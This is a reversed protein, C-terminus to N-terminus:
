RDPRRTVRLANIVPKDSGARPIFRVDMRGDVVEVFFTRADAAYRGVEYAIDHAPLVMQEEVIVDFLRKGPSSNDFEAFRLDVQYIGNPVGDFRYAYPDIRQNKYLKPDDTGSISHSTSKTKSSQVYGWGKASYKRDAAWTDGLTDKYSDGGAAVGQQYDTVVLSVPIRLSGERGANSRVYISALYTGPVLGKTDVTVTLSKKQGPAVSGTTPSVALWPVDSFAPVGSEVLYVRNPNQSITWLNGNEDMELGGGQFGGTAPHPLVSLVTCDDPNLEYISDTPSNTSAWLVGMAGNWALGAISGDAPRCSGVVAGKDAHSLGKVHYVTGENWGAVYFTDDDSRYALGRQSQASWPFNGAISGAVAGTNPDWCYIGNDGGVNLQCVLKRGADYAMDAPWDTVWSHDYARGTAAGAPTFEADHKGAPPDSLWVNGSYGVGWALQMGTPAFSTIVNGPSSPAWGALRLGPALLGRTNLASPNLAGSRALRSTSVTAQLKGGAEAIEFDLNLSGTNKLTLTRTRKQDAPMLLQVVAPTVEARATKLAFDATVTQNEAITVPKQQQGYGHAGAELTYSGVPLQMRYAGAGNTKTSRIVAGAQLARIETGAVAKGDNVDTVVGKAFGSPPLSFLIASSPGLAAQNFSYQFAVSGTENEIGITASGGLQRPDTGDGYQFQIRGNEYLVMEFRTRLAQNDYFAVDRWEIVFQRDPAVGRVDTRVSAAGDVVMDDWFAYIAANPVNRDPIQVNDYAGSKGGQFEIYGKTTLTATSYTQGYLSFDFPLPVNLTGLDGVLPVVTQAEIYSATLDQCGYGFADVRKGLVFDLTADAALVLPKSQGDLCAGAAAQVEYTGDPVSSFAYHGSADTVAPPLPTAAITVKVGPIPAGAGDRVVGSLAHAPAAVLAFDKVTATAETITVDAASQAVYGFAVATAQYTGVPLVMTYAGASDTTAARKTPGTVSVTAGAIPGGAGSIVGKLTGTPGRPAQDVLAFADLRGEGFVNNNEPTGGCSLDPTDIATQGLLARTANIDGMIAPAASWLLAVTGALHPTAMSTGSYVDYANGPVSSRVAVGPASINPKIGGLLSSGRSSFVAINNSVDYAGVAYSEPYDGPSGSTSCGPGENGNAFAPFIGAAIWSQVMEQYFPDGGGGGWSNNVIHPRRDPQPNAGTLDTPALVWQAAALLSSLSCGSSECGKAAIWRAHPAVGIQNTGPDGDDGVMTGMTHTGHGANDCPALSPKGCVNAPDFWNYNHDFVGGGQNGRYQRVLASHDFQVGSDINAVVIGEGRAGFSNWVEPAHINSLGWELNQLKPLARSRQIPPLQYTRDPLIKDVDSRRAIEARTARDATVKITNVVWFPQHKVGRSTLWDRLGAQAAIANGTLQTHVMRGRNTWDLSRSRSLDPRQKLLVWFTEPADPATVLNAQSSGIEAQAAPRQDGAKGGDVCAGFSLAMAAGLLWSAGLRSGLASRMRKM